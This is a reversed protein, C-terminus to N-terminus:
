KPKLHSTIKSASAAVGLETQTGEPSPPSDGRASGGGVPPEGPVPRGTWGGAASQPTEPTRPWTPDKHPLTFGLRERRLPRPAASWGRTRSPHAPPRKPSVTERSRLGRPPEQRRAPSTRTARPQLRHQSSPAVPPADQSRRPVSPLASAPPQAAQGLPAPVWPLGPGAAQLCRASRGLLWPGAWGRQRRCLAPGLGRRVAGPPLAGQRAETRLTGLLLPVFPRTPARHAGRGTGPTRHGADQRPPSSAALLSPRPGLRPPRGGSPHM